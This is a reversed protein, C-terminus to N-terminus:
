SGSKIKTEIRLIDEPLDVEPSDHPTMVVRITYGHELVRLQELKEIEELQGTALDKFIDLFRRTYAYVGLHKIHSVPTNEDRAHPITARSFYLANGRIDRVLKVDKPDHIERTDQIVYGLTAMPLDPEREFPATVEDICSPHILPQDGQVNVLIDDPLLELIRAADAVRDTGSRNKESTIVAKGGFAEVAKLIRMDDTAVVVADVAARACRQYVHQIMPIGNIPHLPKGELRSSGWRAPIIVTKKM